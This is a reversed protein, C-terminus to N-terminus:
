NLAVIGANLYAAYMIWGLYPLLLAAALPRVRRFVLILLLIDVLGLVPSRLGFFLPSWLANLALQAHFIRLAVARNEHPTRAVLLAAIGMMLYLTNWVVPFVWGPPTGPAKELVDYWPGPRFFFGTAGAVFPIALFYFTEALRSSRM